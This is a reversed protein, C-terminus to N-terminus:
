MAVVTMNQYEFQNITGTYNLYFFLELLTFYIAPKM